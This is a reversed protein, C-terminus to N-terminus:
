PAYANEGGRITSMAGWVGRRSTGSVGVVGGQNYIWRESPDGPDIQDDIFRVSGDCMSVLVGNAHNSSAAPTASSSSGASNQSCTPGNPPIATTFTTYMTNAGTWRTGVGDSLSTYVNAASAVLQDGLAQNMCLQPAATGVGPSWNTVNLATGGRVRADGTATVVEALMLTKSLGDSVNSLRCVMQTRSPNPECFVFPSRMGIWYNNGFTSIGDGSNCHYNTPRGSTNLSSLAITKPDSPCEFGPIRTGRLKLQDTAWPYAGASSSVAISLASNYVDAQEIFPLILFLFSYYSNSTFTTVPSAYLEPSGGQYPFHRRAHEYTLVGLSTQKLNNSCASRRAAERAAQVAPLLLGVLVGIIAVVVLLEVITFGHIIGLPTKEPHCTPMRKAM